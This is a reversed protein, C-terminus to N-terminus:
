GRRREDIVEAGLDNMLRSVSDPPAPADAADVLEDLDVDDDIGVPEPEPESEPARFADPADFDHTRLQFKPEVGLFPVFAAKIALAEKRFREHTMKERVKPVGFVIVDGDLAIPQADQVAARVPAKLSALVGPWAARSM